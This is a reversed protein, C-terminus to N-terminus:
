IEKIFPAQGLPIEVGLTMIAKKQEALKSLLTGFIIGLGLGFYSPNRPIKPILGSAGIAIAGGIGMQILDDAGIFREDGIHIVNVGYGPLELVEWAYNIGLGTFTGVGIGVGLSVIEERDM